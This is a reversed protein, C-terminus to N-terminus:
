CGGADLCQQTRALNEASADFEHTGCSSIVLEYGGNESPQLFMLRDKLVQRRVELDGTCSGHEDCILSYTIVQDFDQHVGNAGIVHGTLRGQWNHLRVRERRFRHWIFSGFRTEPIKYQSAISVDGQVVIYNQLHGPSLLPDMGTAQCDLALAQTCSIFGAAAASLLFRYPLM